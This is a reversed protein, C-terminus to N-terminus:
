RPGAARRRLLGYCALGIGVAGLGALVPVPAGSAWSSGSAESVIYVAVISGNGDVSLVSGNVTLPGTVTWREFEFGACAMVALTHQGPPLSADTGNPYGMGDVVVNADCGSPVVGVAIAVWGPGVGGSAPAYNLALTGNGLVTLTTAAVTTSAVTVAATSSWGAFVFAACAPATLAYSGTALAVASGNGYAVGNIDLPGCGPPTITISVNGTLVAAFVALLAANETVIMSTGNAGLTAGGTASLTALRFGPCPVASVAHPGVGVEPSDGYVYGTGDVFVSGCTRPTTVVTVLPPSLSEPTRGLLANYIGSPATGAFYSLMDSLDLEDETHGGLPEYVYRFDYEGPHLAALAALPDTCNAPEGLSAAVLCTSNVVTANSQQYGWIAPNNPSEQDDGGHVIYMRVGSYNSPAFRPASLYSWLREALASENPLRGGSISSLLTATVPDGHTASGITYAYAQFYDSFSLVAGIARVVGPHHGALSWVGMSGMSSGFMSLSGVHHRREVSAVADWIDQEQPGTYPSDVYFGSGTRTNPIIFFYGAAAILPAWSTNFSTLYGGSQPTSQTGSLGHLFLLVPYATANSFGTPLCEQYSLAFGDVSSTYNVSACPSTFNAPPVSPSAAPAIVPARPTGAGGQAPGTM